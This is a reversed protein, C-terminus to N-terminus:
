KHGGQRRALRVIYRRLFPPICRRILASHRWASYLKQRVSLPKLYGKHKKAFYKRNKEYLSIARTNTVTSKGDVGHYIPIPAYMVCWGQRKMMLCLDTEDFMGGGYAEDIGGVADFAERRILYCSGQVADVERVYNYKPTNPEALPWADGSGDEYITVGASQILGHRPGGSFLFMCGVIGIRLNSQMVGMMRSLFHPTAECDDNFILIFNGKSRAVARNIAKTITWNASNDDDIILEYPYDAYKGISRLARQTIPRGVDPTFLM